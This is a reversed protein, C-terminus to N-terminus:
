KFMVEAIVDKEGKIENAKKLYKQDHFKEAAQLLLPYFDKINYPSIQQYTWKKENLAYPLLWDIATQLSAGSTTKYHWLDVGAKEALIAVQFWASTNFTSYGLANTRELELPFTGEQTLQHDLLKKSENVLQLAQESDGTFLAFDIAQVYFWTGHNNKAHHEDNGNKSDLMWELYQRYWQQLRHTDAPTWSQSNEIIGAADAIGTLTRTEIIGIGRGTNIGPIAQAYELNPNMKTAENFFWYRILAASKAAYKEEGTLYYALSLTKTSNELDGIYTRDTIKKIEPNHQGDRRLYPLGNPKSSDYWFYPAQSMYDHKNNSVPIFAKDMVSVLKMNLLADAKNRLENVLKLIAQDKKEVKKKVQELHNADIIFTSPTQASLELQVCVLFVLNLIKM